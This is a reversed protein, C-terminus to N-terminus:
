RAGETEDLVSTGVPKRGRFSWFKNLVFSVPITVCIMILHAWYAPNRLGTSEDFVSPPLQIPSHAHLLAMEIVMGIGQSLLGVAFFRRFASWWGPRGASHVVARFTWLRNLEYNSVNAVVFAVLSFVMYWRINFQTFPLDWFIGTKPSRASPWWHPATKAGLYYVFLNVLVGSGGVLGFRTFQGLSARHRQFWSPNGM